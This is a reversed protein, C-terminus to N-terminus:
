DLFVLVLGLGLNSLLRFGGFSLIVLRLSLGDVFTELTVTTAHRWNNAWAEFACNTLVEVVTSVTFAGLLTRMSEQLNVRWSLSRTGHESDDILVSRSFSVDVDVKVIHALSELLKTLMESSSTSTATRPAATAVTHAARM